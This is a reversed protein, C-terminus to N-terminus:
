MLYYVCKILTLNKTNRHCCQMLSFPIKAEQCSVSNVPLHAIKLRNEKRCKVLHKKKKRRGCLRNHRQLRVHFHARLNLWVVMVRLSVDGVSNLYRSPMRRM